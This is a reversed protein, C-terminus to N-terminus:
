SAKAPGLVEIYARRKVENLWRKFAEQFKQQFLQQYVAANAETLPLSASTRREGAKLLHFGLRTQIPESVEGPKLMFLAADLEPLLEGQAVWGMEGGENAHADESRAKALAAFDAGDALQRRLDGALTRAQEESRTESVRVLMEFAKVRDGPKAQEPHLSIEHAVEQPSVMISSRIKTDVLQRVLLQDHIKEKLQEDSLGSEALAQRFAEESPFRRRLANIRDMVEDPGVTIKARKAEQLILRQEILRRLVMQQVQEGNMGAPPGNEPDSFIDHVQLSVDAETIVEDNVVAVIRNVTSAFGLPEAILWAAALVWPSRARLAM